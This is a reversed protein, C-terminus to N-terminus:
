IIHPLRLRNKMLLLNKRLAKHETFNKRLLIETENEKYKLERLKRNKLNSMSKKQKVNMSNINLTKRDKVERTEKKNKNEKDRNKEQLKEKEQMKKKILSRIIQQEDINQLRCYDNEMLVLPRM